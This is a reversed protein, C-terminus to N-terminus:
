LSPGKVARWTQSPFSCEEWVKASGFSIGGRARANASWFPWQLVTAYGLGFRTRPCGKERLQLRERGAQDWPQPTPSLMYSICREADTRHPCLDVPWRQVSKRVSRMGWVQNSFTLPIKKKRFLHDQNAISPGTTAILSSATALAVHCLLNVGDDLSPGHKQNPPAQIAPSAAAPEFVPLLM